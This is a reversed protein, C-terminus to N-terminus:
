EQAASQGAGAGGGAAAASVTPNSSPNGAQQVVHAIEHTLLDKGEGSYPDKGPPFHINNGDRYTQSGALTPAHSEHIKVDQLNAGMEVELSHRISGPLPQGSSKPLTNPNNSPPSVNPNFPM